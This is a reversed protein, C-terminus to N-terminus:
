HHLKGSPAKPDDVEQNFKSDDELSDVLLIHNNVAVFGAIGKTFEFTFISEENKESDFFYRYLDKKFRDVLIMNVRQVNFIDIFMKEVEECFLRM